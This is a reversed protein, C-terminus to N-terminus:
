GIVFFECNDFSPTDALVEWSRNDIFAHIAKNLAAHAIVLIDGSTQLSEVTVTIDKWVQGARTYLNKYNEGGEVDLIYIKGDALVKYEKALTHIETFHKGELIGHHREKISPIISMPVNLSESVIRGTEKARLLPGTFIHSVNFDKSSQVKKALDYAQHCGLSTLPTDGGIIGSENAESQGHRALIIKGM